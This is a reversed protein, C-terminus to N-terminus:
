EEKQKEKDLIKAISDFECNMLVDRTFTSSRNDNADRKIFTPLNREDFIDSIKIDFLNWM